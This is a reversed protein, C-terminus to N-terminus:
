SRGGLLHVTVRRAKDVGATVGRAQASAYGLMSAAHNVDDDLQDGARGRDHRLAGANHLRLLSRTVHDIRAPLAEVVRILDMLAEDVEAMSTHENAGTM